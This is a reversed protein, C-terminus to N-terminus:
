CAPPRQSLRLRHRHRAVMRYVPPGLWRLPPLALIAGLLHWRPLARLVALAGEFGGAVRGGPLRVIMERALREREVPLRDAEAPDAADRFSLMGEADRKEAWERSATCLRCTGDYFVETTRRVM